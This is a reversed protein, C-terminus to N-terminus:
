DTQAPSVLSAFKNRKGLMSRTNFVGLFDAVEQQSLSKNIRAQRLRSNPQVAKREINEKEM